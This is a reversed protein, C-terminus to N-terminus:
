PWARPVGPAARARHVVLATAPDNDGRDLSIWAFPRREATSARWQAVLTTKGFGAPADVLILRATRITWAGSSGPASSGNRACARRM